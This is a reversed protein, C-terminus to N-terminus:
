DVCMRHFACEPTEYAIAARVYVRLSYWSEYVHMLEWRSYDGSSSNLRSGTHICAELCLVTTGCM